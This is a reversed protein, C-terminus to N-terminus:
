PGPGDAIREAMEDLVGLAQLLLSSASGGIRDCPESAAPYRVPLKSTVLTEDAADVPMRSKLRRAPAVPHELRDAIRREFFQGAPLERPDDIMEVGDSRQRRM